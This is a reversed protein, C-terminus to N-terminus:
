FLPSSLTHSLIIPLHRYHVMTLKVESSRGAQMNVYWLILILSSQRHVKPRAYVGCFAEFECFKMGHYTMSCSVKLCNSTYKHVRFSDRLILCSGAHRASMYQRINSDTPIRDFVTVWELKRLRPYARAHTYKRISAFSHIARYKLICTPELIFYVSTRLCVLSCLYLPRFKAFCDEKATM